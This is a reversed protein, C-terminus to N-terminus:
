IFGTNSSKYNVLHERIGMCIILYTYCIRSIISYSFLIFLIFLLLDIITIIEKDVFEKKLDNNTDDISNRGTSHRLAIFNITEVAWRERLKLGKKRQRTEFIM